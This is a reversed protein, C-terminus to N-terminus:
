DDVGPVLNLSFDLHCEAEIRFSPPMADVARFLAHPKCAPLGNEQIETENIRASVQEDDYSSYDLGAVRNFEDAGLTYSLGCKFNSDPALTYDEGLPLTQYVSIQKDMGYTLSIGGQPTKEITFVRSMRGKGQSPTGVMFGPEREGPRLAYQVGNEGAKETEQSLISMLLHVKNRDAPQLAGYRADDDGTVFRALEDRAKDLDNSLKITKDGDRLTANIYRAIDKHFTIEKGAALKKMEGCITINMMARANANLRSGLKLNPDNADGLQNRILQKAEDAAPGRGTVTGDVFHDRNRASIGGAMSLIDDVLEDGGLAPLDPIGNCDGIEVRADDPPTGLRLLAEEVHTALVALFTMAVQGTEKLGDRMGDSVDGPIRDEEGFNFRNYLRDLHATTPSTLAGRMNGLAAASCRSLMIRAVFAHSAAQADAAHLFEKGAGSSDMAALITDYFQRVTKHIEMGSSGEDLRRLLNLPARTAAQVLGAFVERPVPKGLAALMEKGAEHIVPNKRSLGKLQELNQVIGEVRRQVEQESRPDAGGTEFITGLNKDVIDMAEANGHCSAFALKVRDAFVPERSAYEDLGKQLLEDHKAAIQELATQVAMIRRATLPRGKGYDGMKMASKVSAPIHDEGGFMRAVSERFLTRVEDNVSKNAGTRIFLKNFISESKAAITHVGNGILAQVKTNEDKGKAFDVFTKFQANIFADNVNLPNSM